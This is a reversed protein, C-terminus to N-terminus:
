KDMADQSAAAPKLAQSLPTATVMFIKGIMEGFHFNRTSASVAIAPAAALQAGRGSYRVGSGDVM